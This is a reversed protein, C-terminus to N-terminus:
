QDRDVMMARVVFVGVVLVLILPIINWFGMFNEAEIRDASTFNFASDNSYLISALENNAIQNFTVYVVGGMFGLMLLGYIIHMVAM